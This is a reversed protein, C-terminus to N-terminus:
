HPLFCEEWVAPEIRQGKLAAACTEFLLDTRCFFSPIDKEQEGRSNLLVGFPVFFVRENEMLASLHRLTGAPNERFVPLLVLPIGMKKKKAQEALYIMTPESDSVIVLLDLPEEDAIKQGDMVRELTQVPVPKKYENERSEGSERNERSKGPFVEERGPDLLVLCVEAGALLLRKIEGIIAPSHLHALSLAIGIRKGFFLEYTEM